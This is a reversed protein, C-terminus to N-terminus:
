FVLFSAALAAGLAIASPALLRRLLGGLTTGAYEASVTVCPHVPSMVFGIYISFYMVAFGWPSLTGFSALFVPVVISAPAQERGTALGLLLGVGVSLLHPTLPLEALAEPAGSSKFVALYAFMGVIILGFRWPRAKRALAILQRPGLMGWIGLALSVSVGIATALEPVPLPAVSKLVFDLAPAILLIGLPVLLGRLSFASTYALKGSYLRLLFIYGLLCTLAFAPLQFPIVDWVELGALKAAAILSPSLPYILLLAHRFWVNVAARVDAPAGGAREVMPSSLLAGGPMPLMGLIAPSLAVFARRGIRMNAVLTDMRGTRELVAGVLPIITVALALLMVSPDSLVGAVAGLVDVPPLTFVGLLLAASFMGIWLSWRALALLAALSL